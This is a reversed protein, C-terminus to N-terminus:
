VWHHTSAVTRSWRCLYSSMTEIGALDLEGRIASRTRITLVSDALVRHGPKRRAPFDEQSLPGGGSRGLARPNPERVRLEPIQGPPTPAPTGTVNVTVRLSASKGVGRLRAASVATNPRTSAARASNMTVADGHGGVVVALGGRRRQRRATTPQDRDGSRNVAGPDDGGPGEVGGYGGTSSSLWQRNHRGAREERARASRNLQRCCSM